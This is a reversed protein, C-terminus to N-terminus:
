PCFGVVTAEKVVSAFLPLFLNVDGDGLNLQRQAGDLPLQSRTAELRADDYEVMVELLLTDHLDM